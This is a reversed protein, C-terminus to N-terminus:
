LNTLVIEFLTQFDGSNVKEYRISGKLAKVATKATFLGLGAGNLEDQGVYFM